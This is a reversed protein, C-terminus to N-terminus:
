QTAYYGQIYDSEETSNAGNQSPFQSLDGQFNLISNNLSEGPRTATNFNPIAMNEMGLMPASFYAWLDLEDTSNTTDALNLLPWLTEEANWHSTNGADQSGLATEQQLNIDSDTWGATGEALNQM